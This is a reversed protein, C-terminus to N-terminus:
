VRLIVSSLALASSASSEFVLVSRGELQATPSGALRSRPLLLLAPALQLRPVNVAERVGSGLPIDSCCTDQLSTGETRKALGHATCCDNSPLEIGSHDQAICYVLGLASSVGLTVQALICLLAITRYIPRRLM